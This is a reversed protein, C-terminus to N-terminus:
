PHDEKMRIIGSKRVREIEEYKEDKEYKEYKPTKKTSEGQQFLSIWISPRSPYIWMSVRIRFGRLYPKKFHGSM